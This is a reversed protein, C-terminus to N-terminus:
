YTYEADYGPVFNHPCAVAPLYADVTINQMAFFHERILSIRSNNYATNLPNNYQLAFGDSHNVFRQLPM